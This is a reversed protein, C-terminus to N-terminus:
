VALALKMRQVTSAGKGSIKAANRVSQGSKLVSCHGRLSFSEQLAESEGPTKIAMASHLM